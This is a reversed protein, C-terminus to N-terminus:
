MESRTPTFTGSITPMPRIVPPASTAASAGVKSVSSSARRKWPAPAAATGVSPTAEHVGGCVLRPFNVVTGDAGSRAAEKVADTLSANQTVAAKVADTLSKSM